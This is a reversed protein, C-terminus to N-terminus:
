ALSVFNRGKVGNRGKVCGLGPSTGSQPPGDGRGAEGLHPHLTRDAQVSDLRGHPQQLAVLTVHNARQAESLHNLLVAGGAAALDSALGSDKLVNKTEGLASVECTANAKGLLDTM